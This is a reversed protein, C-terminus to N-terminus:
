YHPCGAQHFPVGQLAGARSLLSVNGSSNLGRLLGGGGGEDGQFVPQEICECVCGAPPFSEESWEGNAQCVASKEKVTTDYGAIHYAAM